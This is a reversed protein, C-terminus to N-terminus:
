TAGSMAQMYVLFGFIIALVFGAVVLMVTGTLVGFVVMGVLVPATVVELTRM